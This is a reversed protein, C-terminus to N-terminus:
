TSDAVHELTDHLNAFGKLKVTLAKCLIQWNCSKKPSSHNGSLHVNQVFQINDLPCKKPHEGIWVLKNAHPTTLM